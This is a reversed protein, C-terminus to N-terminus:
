ALLDDKSPSDEVDDVVINSDVLAFKGDAFDVDTGLIKVDLTLDGESIEAMRDSEVLVRALGNVEDLPLINLFGTSPVRRYKDIVNGNPFYLTIQYDVLATLNEPNGDKDNILVELDLSQGNFIAM